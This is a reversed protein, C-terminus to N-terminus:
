PTNPLGKDKVDDFRQAEEEEGQEENIYLEEQEQESEDPATEPTPHQLLPESLMIQLPPPVLYGDLGEPNIKSDDSGDATISAAQRRLGETDVITNTQYVKDVLDELAFAVDKDVSDVEKKKPLNLVESKAENEKVKKCWKQHMTLATKSKFGVKWSICKFLGAHTTKTYHKESIDLLKGRHEVSKKFNYKFLTTQRKAM